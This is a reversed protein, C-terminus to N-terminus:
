RSSEIRRIDTSSLKGAWNNSGDSGIVDVVLVKLPSFGQKERYKNVYDGGSVTEQSVVLTDIDAIYGTPGCIDNIQYIEFHRTHMKQVFKVVKAVRVELLELVNAYKKNKLLEPGTVGVILTQTACFLALQLIMKHADHLHDFTGGVACVRGMTNQSKIAVKRSQLQSHLCVKADNSELAHVISAKMPENVYIDIEFKYTFGCSTAIDRLEPYLALLIANLENVDSVPRSISVSVGQTNSGIHGFADKFFESYDKNLPDSVQITPFSM